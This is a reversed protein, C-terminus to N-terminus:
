KKHKGVCLVGGGHHLKEAAGKPAGELSCAQELALWIFCVCRHSPSGRVQHKEVPDKLSAKFKAQDCWPKYRQMHPSHPAHLNTAGCARRTPLM